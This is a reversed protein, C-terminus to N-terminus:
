NWGGDFACATKMSRKEKGNGDNRNSLTVLHSMMTFFHKDDVSPVSDRERALYLIFRPLDDFSFIDLSLESLDCYHELLYQAKMPHLYKSIIGIVDRSTQTTVM